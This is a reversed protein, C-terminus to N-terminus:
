TTSSGGLVNEFFSCNDHQCCRALLIVFHQHVAATANRGDSELDSVVVPRCIVEADMLVHMLSLAGRM